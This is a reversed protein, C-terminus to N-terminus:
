KGSFEDLSPSSEPLSASAADEDHYRAPRQGYLPSLLLIPIEFHQECNRIRAQM